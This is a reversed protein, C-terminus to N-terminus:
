FFEGLESFAEIEPMVASLQASSHGMLGGALYVNQRGTFEPHFGLGLELMASANGRIEISGESPRITGTIAKLLTSKGAGNSGVVAIAEGPYVDFSVERVAWFVSRPQLPIGAWTLARAAVSGYNAYGKGLGRVVVVPEVADTM